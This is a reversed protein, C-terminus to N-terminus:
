FPLLIGGPNYTDPGIGLLDGAVYGIIVRLSVLVFIAILGWFMYSKGKEIEPKSDSNLIFKAVGWFFILFALSILIPNLIAIIDLIETIIDSFTSGALNFQAYTITPIALAIIIKKM